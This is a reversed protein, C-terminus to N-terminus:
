VERGHSVSRARRSILGPQLADQREPVHEKDCESLDDARTGNSQRTDDDDAQNKDGVEKTELNRRTELHPQDQDQERSKTDIGSKGQGLEVRGIAEGRTM